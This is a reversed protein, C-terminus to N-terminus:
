AFLPRGPIYTIGTCGGLYPTARTRRMNIASQCCRNLRIHCDAIDNGFFDFILRSNTVRSSTGCGRCCWRFEWCHPEFLIFPSMVHNRRQAEPSSCLGINPADRSLLNGACQFEDEQDSEPPEHLEGVLQSGLVLDDCHYKKKQLSM